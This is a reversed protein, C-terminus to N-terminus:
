FNGSLFCHSLVELPQSCSVFNVRHAADFRPLKSFTVRQKQESTFALMLHQQSHSETPVYSIPPLHTPCLFYIFTQRMLINCFDQPPLIGLQECRIYEKRKHSESPFTVDEQTEEVECPQPPFFRVSLSFVDVLSHIVLFRFKNYHFINIWADRARKDLLQQMIFFNALIALRQTLCPSLSTFLTSPPKM